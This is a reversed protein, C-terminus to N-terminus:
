LSLSPPKFLFTLPRPQLNRNTIGCLCRPGPKTISRWSWRCRQQTWEYYLVGYLNRRQKIDRTSPAPYAQKLDYNAEVEARSTSMVCQISNVWCTQRYRSKPFIGFVAYLACSPVDQLCARVSDEPESTKRCM